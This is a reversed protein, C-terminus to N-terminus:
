SPSHELTHESPDNLIFSIGVLKVLKLSVEVKISFPRTELQTSEQTSISPFRILIICGFLLVQEEVQEPFVMIM